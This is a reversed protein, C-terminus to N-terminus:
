PASEEREVRLNTAVAEAFTVLRAPEIERATIYLMVGDDEILVAQQGQSDAFLEGRIWPGELAQGTWGSASMEKSWTDAYKDTRSRPDVRALSARTMVMVNAIERVRDADAGRELRAFSDTTALPDLELRV